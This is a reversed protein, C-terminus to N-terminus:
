DGAMRFLSGGEDQQFLGIEVKVLADLLIPLDAETAQELLYTGWFSSYRLNRGNSPKLYQFIQNAGIVAPFLMPLLRNLLRDDVVDFAHKRINEAITLLGNTDDPHQAIM